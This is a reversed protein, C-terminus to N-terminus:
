KPELITVYVIVNPQSVYAEVRVYVCQYEYM